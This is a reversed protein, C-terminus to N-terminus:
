WYHKFIRKEGVDKGANTTTKKIITMTVPTPHFRLTMKIQIERIALSTLHRWM